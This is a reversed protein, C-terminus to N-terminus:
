ANVSKQSKAKRMSISMIEETCIYPEIDRVLKAKEENWEAEELWQKITSSLTQTHISFLDDYGRERLLRYLEYKTEPVARPYVKNVVVFQTGDSRTFNQMEADTMANVLEFEVEKLERELESLEEKLADKKERLANYKESLELIRQM